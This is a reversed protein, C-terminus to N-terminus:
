FFSELDFERKKRMATFGFIYNHIRNGVLKIIVKPSFISVRQRERNRHSVLQEFRLCYLVFLFVICHLKESPVTAVLSALLFSFHYNNIWHTPFSNSALYQPSKRILCKVLRNVGKRSVHKGSADIQARFTDVCRENVMSCEVFATFQGNCNRELHTNDFPCCIVQAHSNKCSLKITLHKLRYIILAHRCTQRSKIRYM